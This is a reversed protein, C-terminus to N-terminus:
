KSQICRCSLFDHLDMFIYCNKEEKLGVPLFAQREGLGWFTDELGKISHGGILCYM